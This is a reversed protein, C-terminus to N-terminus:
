IKLDKKNSKKIKTEKTKNSDDNIINSKTIKKKSVKLNDNIETEKDNIETNKDNNKNYYFNKFFNIKGESLKYYINIFEDNLKSNDIINFDPIIFM